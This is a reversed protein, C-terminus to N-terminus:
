LKSLATFMSQHRASATYGLGNLFFGLFMAGRKTYRSPAWAAALSEKATELKLSRELKHKKNAASYSRPISDGGNPSNLGTRLSTAM